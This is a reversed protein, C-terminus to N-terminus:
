PTESWWGWSQKSLRTHLRWDFFVEFSRTVPRQRPFVGTIPSIGACTALLASLTEMQHRWWPDVSIKLLVTVTEHRSTMNGHVKCFLSTILHMLHNTDETFTMTLKVHIAQYNIPTQLLKYTYCGLVFNLTKHCFIHGCFTSSNYGMTPRNPALGNGVGISVFTLSRQIVINYNEAAFTCKCIAHACHCSNQIPRLINTIVKQANPGQQTFYTRTRISAIHILFSLEKIHINFCYPLLYHTEQAKPICQCICYTSVSNHRPVSEM